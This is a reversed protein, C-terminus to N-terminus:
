RTHERYAECGPCLRSPPDALYIGCEVCRQAGASELAKELAQMAAQETPYSTGVDYARHFDKQVSLAVFSWDHDVNDILVIGLREGQRFWRRETTLPEGSLPM